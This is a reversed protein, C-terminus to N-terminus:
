TKPPMQRGACQNALNHRSERNLRSEAEWVERNKEVEEAIRGELSAMTERWQSMMERRESVCRQDAEAREQAHQQHLTVIMAQMMPVFRFMLWVAIVALLGFSGSSVILKVAEMDVM